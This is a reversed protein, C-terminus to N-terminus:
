QRLRASLQAERRQESRSRLRRGGATWLRAAIFLGDSFIQGGLRGREVARSKSLVVDKRHITASQNDAGGANFV